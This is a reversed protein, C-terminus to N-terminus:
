SALQEKENLRIVLLGISLLIWFPFFYVISSCSIASILLGLMAIYISKSYYKLKTNTNSILVLEYVVKFYWFVFVLFFIFGTDVLIELWYNHLSTLKGAVKGNKEQIFKSNGAGVGLWLHNDLEDLANKILEQRAGLSNSTQNDDFLAFVADVSNSIRKNVSNFPNISQPLLIILIGLTVIFLFIRKSVVTEIFFVYFIILAASLVVGRSNTALLVLLLVLTIIYKIWKNASLLTFPLAIGLLTALNNPNWHFGTPVSLILSKIKDSFNVDIKYGHGFHTVLKSYPSIPYRFQTYIELLSVILEVFLLMGLVLFLRNLQTLNEIYFFTFYVISIGFLLYGVYTVAYLFHPAWLMSIMYYVVMLAPFLFVFRPKTFIFSKAARFPFFLLAFAFAIHFAYIKGYSLGVGVFASALFVFIINKKIALM